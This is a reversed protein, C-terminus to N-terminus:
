ELSDRPVVEVMEQLRPRHHNGCRGLEDSGLSKVPKEPGM